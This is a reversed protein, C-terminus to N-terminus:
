FGHRMRVELAASFIGLIVMMLGLALIVNLIPFWEAAKSVLLIMPLGVLNMLTILSGFVRGRTHNPTEEHFTTQAAVIILVDAFGTLFVLAMTYWLQLTDNVVALNPDGIHTVLPLLCLTLGAGLVGSAILTGKQWRRKLINGVVAGLAAGIGAPLILYLSIQQVTFDLTRKALAPLLAVISREIAFVISFQVVLPFIKQHTRVFRIGDKIEGRLQKFFERMRMAHELHGSLRPLFANLVASLIFAFFLIAYVKASGFAQLLPGAISYGILFTIYVTSVFLSNAIFIEKRDVVEPISSSEAPGFFQSIASIMFGLTILAFPSNGFLFFGVVVFARCLNSLLLVVKRDFRDALAGALSAFLVPPLSVTAVLIGVLTSSGSIEFIRIALAFNLIHGASQNLIQSGWLKLFNAHGLIPLAKLLTVRPNTM